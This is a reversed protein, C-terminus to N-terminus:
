RQRRKLLGQVAAGSVGFTILLGLAIIVLIPVLDGKILDFSDALGVLPGVFFLPLLGVLFSSTERIQEPKVLKCLLALFLLILGYVAAPIPLPVLAHLSEGLLTFALIVAFQKLHRM